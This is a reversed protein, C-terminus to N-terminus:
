RAPPPRNVILQGERSRGRWGVHSVTLLRLDGLGVPCGQKWFGRQELQTKMEQPVPKASWQFPALAVLLASVAYYRVM